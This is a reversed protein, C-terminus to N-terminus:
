TCFLLTTTCTFSSTSTGICGIYVACHVVQKWNLDAAMQSACELEAAVLAERDQEPGGPSMGHPRLVHGDVPATECHDSPKLKLYSVDWM